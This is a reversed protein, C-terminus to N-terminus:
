SQEHNKLIFKLEFNRYFNILVNTDARFGVFGFMSTNFHETFM